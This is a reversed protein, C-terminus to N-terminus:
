FQYTFYLVTMVNYDNLGDMFEDDPSNEDLSRYLARIGIKTAGELSEVSGNASASRGLLVSYDLKIQEPYTINFQRYFDYPGWADKMYFGSITHRGGFIYKGHLEWYDRTGGNPDGTSQDFGRMISAIFKRGAGTNFVMRSSVTWVDEAPLGEGFSANAGGPEYYFLYADTRTPFETYGGGITFAFDADERWDNDWSWFQTAGTPDWTFFIEAARAERNGFVAFPDSDRNRPSAGPNLSGGPEISPPIFPNAHVVNDRYMVRPFIQWNGFTMIMGGEYEKKNGLGSYPMRSPDTVGFVKHHQGGDAVLGAYHASFYTENGLVPFTVKAKFGLTDEFDVEDLYVNGARDVRTFQEDVKETASMIGGLELKWSDWLKKEMYLTTQRSQRETAQTAAAGQGLRAVDESHIFTWDMGALSFDYKLVFKPNAGWYVEPGALLTLGDWSNKGAIEIGEPAKANWVDMGYTDTAEHVLGFFDGEFGWHFRPTHYFATVDFDEGEYTAEFDYIEVREGSEVVVPSVPVDQIEVSADDIVVPLGRDGYTFEIPRKDAVNGLINLSFQGGLNQTPQFGFDLFMMQGDSFELGNEGNETIAQELGRLVFEGRLDGGTFSLKSKKDQNEAKLQRVEGKLELYDM